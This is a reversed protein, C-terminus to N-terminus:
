SHLETEEKDYQQKVDMYQESDYQLTSVGLVLTEIAYKVITTNVSSLSSIHVLSALWFYLTLGSFTLTGM